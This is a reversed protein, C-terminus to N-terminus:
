RRAKMVQVVLSKAGGDRLDGTANEGLRDLLVFCVHRACFHGHKIRNATYSVRM